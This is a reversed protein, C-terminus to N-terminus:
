RLLIQEIMYTALNMNKKGIGSRTKSTKREREIKKERKKERRGTKTNKGRMTRDEM